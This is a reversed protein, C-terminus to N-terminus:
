SCEITLSLRQLVDGRVDNSSCIGGKESGCFDIQRRARAHNQIALNQEFPEALPFEDEVTVGIPIFDQDLNKM